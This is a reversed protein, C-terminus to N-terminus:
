RGCRGIRLLYFLGGSLLLLAPPLPVASVTLSVEDLGAYSSSGPNEALSSFVLLPLSDANDPAIFDLSFLQWEDLDMTAGLYGLSEGSSTNAFEDAILFLEYGGPNDLDSRKAQLMWASLSYRESPVLPTSLIQGFEETAASWGAVWRLGDHATTNPFNGFDGPSLGYSGDNSYTDPTVNISLWDSPMLGQGTGTTPTEEFSPNRLLNANASLQSLGLMVVIVVTRIM